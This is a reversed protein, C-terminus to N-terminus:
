QLDMPGELSNKLYQRVFPNTESKLEEGSGDFVVEGKHIMIFRRSYDLFYKPKYTIIIVSKNDSYCRKKLSSMFPLVNMLSQNELPHEMLLLDPNMAIARAYATSLLQSFRLETPMQKRFKQLHMEDLLQNVREAIENDSMTSHYTLPLAINDELNMNGILGLSSQLYVMDKRTQNLEVINMENILRNKFIINGSFDKKILTMILFLNELGSNELGFLVINEGTDMSFSINNLKSYSDSEFKINELALLKQMEM